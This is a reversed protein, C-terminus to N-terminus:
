KQGHMKKHLLKEKEIAWDPLPHAKDFISALVYIKSFNALVVMNELAEEVSRGVTVCGHNAIFAANNMGLVDAVSEGLDKTGPFKYESVKIEGGLLIVFEDSIPPLSRHSVSLVYSWIAHTHIISQVDPRRKYISLHLPLESSPKKDGKIVKGEYDTIILDEAKVTSYDKGSSTVILQDKGYRASLNGGKAFLINQEFLEKIAKIIREGVESL